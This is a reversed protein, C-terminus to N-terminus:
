RRRRQCAAPLLQVRREKAPAALGFESVQVEFADAKHYLTGIAQDLEVELLQITKESSLWGRLAQRPAQFVDAFTTSRRASHPAEYLIM